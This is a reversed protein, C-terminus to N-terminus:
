RVEGLEHAHPALLPAINVDHLGCLDLSVARVEVHCVFLVLERCAEEAVIAFAEGEVKLPPVTSPCEHVCELREGLVQQLQSDEAHVVLLTEGAEVCARLAVDDRGWVEDDVCSWNERIKKRKETLKSVRDAKLGSAGRSSYCLHFSLFFPFSAIPFFLSFLSLIPRCANSLQRIM